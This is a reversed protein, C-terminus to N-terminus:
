GGLDALQHAPQDKIVSRRDQGRNPEQKDASLRLLLATQAGMHKLLVQANMGSDLSQAEDLGDLDSGEGMSGQGRPEDRAGQTNPQPLRPPERNQGRGRAGQGREELGPPGGQLSPDPSMGPQGLPM